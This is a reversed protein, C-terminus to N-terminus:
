RQEGAGAPEVYFQSFYRRFEPIPGDGDCLLPRIHHQKHSWIAIDDEVGSAINEISQMALAEEPSGPAERRRTFAFRLEVEQDDIPTVITMLLTETRGWFQTWKQGAGNQVTLLRSTLTKTSGDVPDEYTRPGEVSSRRVVGDYTTEGEPVADMKHVYRFHAPDVGNEAIEQPNSRFRWRYRTLPEWGPDGIEPHEIVDFFPKEDAPHYWAWLIQNREVVSYTRIAGAREVKAPIRKAYPVDVCRGDPAWAWAHFPCRLAEDDVRGGHGLHAGLHPCYADLLSPVGSRTRYLVLERGFYRVPRVDGPALEDSYSVFFWGFPVPHPLPDPVPDM